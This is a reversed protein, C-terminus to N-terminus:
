YRKLMRISTYRFVRAKKLDEEGEEMEDKPYSEHVYFQGRVRIFNKGPDFDKPVRLTSDAPEIFFYSKINVSDPYKKALDADNWEACACGFITYKLTLTRDIGDLHNASDRVYLFHRHRRPSDSPPPPHPPANSDRIEVATPAPVPSHCAYLSLLLYAVAMTINTITYRRSNM